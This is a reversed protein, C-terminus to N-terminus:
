GLRAWVRCASTGPYQVYLNSGRDWYFSTGLSGKPMFVVLPYMTVGRRACLGLDDTTQKLHQSIPEKIMYHTGAQAPFALVGCSIATALARSVLSILIPRPM